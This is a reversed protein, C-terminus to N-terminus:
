YGFRYMTKKRRAPLNDARPPPMPRASESGSDDSDGLGSESLVSRARLLFRQAGLSPAPASHLEAPKADVKEWAAGGDAAVAAAAAAAATTTTVTKSTTTTQATTAKIDTTAHQADARFRYATGAASKVRQLKQETQTDTLPMDSWVDSLATDGLHLALPDTAITLPANELLRFQETRLRWM